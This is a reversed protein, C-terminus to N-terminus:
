FDGTLFSSQLMGYGSVNPDSGLPVAKETLLEKIRDPTFKPYKELILACVGAVVPAAMSTGTFSRYFCDHGCSTIDVADALLDPKAFEGSPGRSSFEPVYPANDKYGVGGVTIIYPSNGPSRVTGYDPGSNGSSAVVTVGSNWLAEAGMVLPDHKLPESGFSMCLVRIDYRKRNNYVWQMAELIEFAGGEGSNGIAKLSILNAKPAVGCYRKGSVLGSGLLIGSVATGHGNDDYPSVGDGVFDVFKVIRNRPMVLDLHPSVGTDIVAATVGSGFIGCEHLFEVGCHARARDMCCTVTTHGTVARVCDLSALDDLKHVNVLAGFAGIFPFCRVISSAYRGVARRARAISDVFIVCKTEGNGNATLRVVPDVKSM